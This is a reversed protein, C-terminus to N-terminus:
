LKLKERVLNEAEKIWRIYDNKSPNSCIIEQQEREQDNQTICIDPFDVKIKSMSTIIIPDNCELSVLKLTLKIEDNATILYDTYPCIDTAITDAQVHIGNYLPHASHNPDIVIREMQMATRVWGDPRRLKKAIDKKRLKHGMLADVKNPDMGARNCLQTCWNRRLLYASPDKIKHGYEDKDPEYEMAQNVASWFAEGCGLLAFLEKIFKSVKHPNATKYSDTPDAAVPMNMIMDESYLRDGEENKLSRLWELRALLFDFAFKYLIIPRYANDSKLEEVRFGGSAQTLIGYVAFQNGFYIERWLPACAEATRAMGCLMIVAAAAYGNEPMLMLIAALKVM